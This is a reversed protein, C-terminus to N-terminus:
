LESHWPRVKLSTRIPLKGYASAREAFEQQMESRVHFRKLRSGVVAGDLEAGNLEELVYTDKLAIAEKIRCPGLWRFYM